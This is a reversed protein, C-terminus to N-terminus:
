RVLLLHPYQQQMDGEREKNSNGTVEDWMVRVLLIYKICFEKVKHHMIKVPFVEYELNDKLEVIEPKIVHLLKSHSKRLQFVDHLNPLHLPLTIHYLIPGVKRQTLNKTKTSREVGTMPTVRIFVHDGVEFKLPRTRKVSYSKQRDQAVKMKDRILKVHKTTQQVM